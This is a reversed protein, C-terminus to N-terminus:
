EPSVVVLKWFINTGNRDFVEFVLEHNGEGDVVDSLLKVGATNTEAVHWSDLLDDAFWLEVKLGDDIAENVATVTLSGDPQREPVVTQGIAFEAVDPMGNTNNDAGMEAPIGNTNAWQQFNSPEFDMLVSDMIPSVGSVVTNDVRFEFQFGYGEPLASLDLRAPTLAVVRIYEPMHDYQESVTQWATWQDISGDGDVDVGGRAEVGEVWPGPSTYDTSQQTILYFKGEAFCVTPDPHGSHMSGVFEYEDYISDSAFRGMKIPQGAPHFDCFMWFRSGIKISTWDGFADQEPTHIEFLADPASPHHYTGFTGTPTTRLDVPPPHEGVDFGNLGDESSVHGALPSDWSHSRARIPSWDEYILHFLGDEDSRILSCDSGHGHIGDVPRAFAAGMNVGAVGDSLDNDIILYPTHDNPSDSYIYFAGDKYEASTVWRGVGGPTVPGKHVWNVM